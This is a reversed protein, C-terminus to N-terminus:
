SCLGDAFLVGPNLINDPDLAQKIRQMTNIEEQSRSLGLMPAKARGIGHEASISGGLEAALRFVAEDLTLDEHDLDDVLNVHLGGDALHGFLYLEAKPALDALQMELREEFHAMNSLPLTLDLKRPVGRESISETISERYSWLRRSSVSDDAVAVAELDSFAELMEDAPDRAGACEVLLFAGHEGPFPLPMGTRNRVLDMCESSVYEVAELSPLMSRLRSCLDVAAALSELGILAVMRNPAAPVLQLMVETVIGLTGESGCMLGTLDYGTNDKALGRLSAVVEGSALVAELGAVRRRTMGYRLVRTGGANTAVMGGITASARSALDIGVQWGSGAVAEQVSELTCGAGVRVTGGTRDVETVRTLRRLSLVVPRDKGPVSGGVLGTNGGQPVIPVGHRACVEVVGAVESADAPRVVATSEGRWRGTWDVEYSARMDADSIVHDRGVVRSLEDLVDTM